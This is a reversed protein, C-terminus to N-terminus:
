NEAEKLMTTIFIGYGKNTKDVVVFNVAGVIKDGQIIPSGSMGQVIGGTKKLLNDDTVEFLINKTNSNMNIKLINIKFAEVKEGDIVTLIQAEGLNIESPEAVKYLKNNPLQDTYKGFIGSTTNELVNGYVALSNSIANKEGPNGDASKNIGTVTSYFITGTDSEFKSKTSKELIEHGLAGFTKTSPEYFTVTGVGRLM